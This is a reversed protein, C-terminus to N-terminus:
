GGPAGVGAWGGGLSRYLDVTALLRALDLQVALDRAAYLTRQTDLLVLLTDAGARFRSESFALARNAQDVVFAQARAQRAIGDLANLSAEVDGFGTLLTQRYNALLEERQALALDRQAALLGADFIPAALGAALSYLPSDFIASPRSGGVGLGAQLTLRPLMAARAAMVSADAAALQAEARAVDPRRTLLLAPVGADIDPAVIGALRDDVVRFEPRGILVALAVEIDDADQRLAEADRRLSAVLGRQQALELAGAAGARARAAVTDLLRTATDLSLEAIALRERAAVTRLWLSAAGTTVTVRLTDRDYRSARQLAVASDRVARNRGWFDVEYSAAVGTSYVAGAAQANGGLRSQRSANATGAVQPLLPAGAVRARADAQQVRAVAAAINQNDSGAAQIVDILEPRGFTQWWILSSPMDPLTMASSLSDISAPNFLTPDSLPRKSYPLASVSLDSRVDARAPVRKSWAEPLAPPTTPLRGVPAACGALATVLLLSPLVGTSSKREM